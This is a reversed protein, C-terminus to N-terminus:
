FKYHSQAGYMRPAGVQQYYFGLGSNDARSTIFYTNTLNRGWAGFGWRGDASEYSLGASLLSYSPQRLIPENVTEFYQSSYTTDDLRLNVRGWSGSALIVDAGLTLNMHPAAALDHGRVDITGGGAYGKVIRANLLGLGLSLTVRDVPRATVELEAGTIHSTPLTLLQGVGTAPNVDIYQLNKYWDYFMSTSLQLRRDFIETKYGVEFADNTENDAVNVSLPSFFAQANFAKGRYGHSYSAYALQNEGPTYDIGVRGSPFGGSFGASLTANPNAPDGPILNAVPPPGGSYIGHYAYGQGGGWVDSIYNYALGKDYTYRLGAHLKWSDALRYSFDSYAAYSRKRQDFSNVFTCNVPVFTPTVGALDCGQPYNKGGVNPNIDLFYDVITSNYVAEDIYYAGLIFNFPGPYTSTLRLDQTVQRDRDIYINYFTRRASGSTDEPSYFNGYDWSSISTVTLQDSAKWTATVAASNSQNSRSGALSSALEHQGGHGTFDDLYPNAVPDLNHFYAYTGAGIGSSTVIPKVGYESTQMRSTQARVFLELTDSVKIIFSPRISYDGTGNLDQRGPVLNKMYGDAYDYFFALRGAVSSSLPINVAGSANVANYNGYSVAIDAGLEDFTPKRTIFNVAGGTTNKGYLTGQPGKLVEVRELDYFSFGYVANNGKAVEDLYVAVPSGQNFSYDYMSVGRLAYIPANQGNATQVTMNPVTAVFDEMSRLQKEKLLEASLVTLSQPVDLARETRKQATVMIEELVGAGSASEPVSTTQATAPLAALFTLFISPLGFPWKGVTVINRDKWM